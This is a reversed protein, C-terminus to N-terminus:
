VPPTSPVDAAHDEEVLRNASRRLRRQERSSSARIMGPDLDVLAFAARSRRLRSRSGLSQVTRTLPRVTGRAATTRRAARSGNIPSPMGALVTQHVGCEGAVGRQALAREHRDDLRHQHVPPVISRRLKSTVERNLV